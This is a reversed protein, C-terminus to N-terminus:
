KKDDCTIDSISYNINYNKQKINILQVVKALSGYKYKSQQSTRIRYDALKEISWFKQKTKM